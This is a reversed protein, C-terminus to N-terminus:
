GVYYPHRRTALWTGFLSVLGAVIGWILFFLLIVFFGGGGASANSPSSSSLHSPYNPIDNLLFSIGYTVIGAIFGTLFGLRRQVAIKGIVFGALLFILLGIFFTLGAIGVLTLALSYSLEVPPKADNFTKAQQYTASNAFVIIINEISCLVGAILGAIVANKLRNRPLEPMAIEERQRLPRHTRQPVPQTRALFDDDHEDDEHGHSEQRAQHLPYEQESEHM